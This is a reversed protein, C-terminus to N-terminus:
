SLTGMNTLIQRHVARLKDQDYNVAQPDVQALDMDALLLLAKADLNWEDLLGVATGQAERIRTACQKSKEYEGQKFASLAMWYWAEASLPHTPAVQTMREFLALGDDSRNIRMLRRALPVGVYPLQEAPSAPDDLLERAFEEAEPMKGSRAYAEFVLEMYGWFDSSESWLWDKKDPTLGEWLAIVDQNRGFDRVQRRALKFLRNMALSPVTAERFQNLALSSGQEFLQMGWERLDSPGFQLQRALNMLVDPDQINGLTSEMLSRAELLPGPQGAAILAQCWLLQAQLRFRVPISDEEFFLRYLRASEVQDFLSEMRALAWVSKGWMANTTPVHQINANLLPRALDHRKAMMCSLALSHRTRPVFSQGYKSQAEALLGDLNVSRGEWLSARVLEKAGTLWEKASLDPMELLAQAKQRKVTANGPQAKASSLLMKRIETEVVPFQAGERASWREAVERWQRMDNKRLERVITLITRSRLGAPAADLNEILRDSIRWGGQQRRAAILTKWAPLTKAGYKGRRIADTAIEIARAAEGKALAIQALGQRARNAGGKASQIAKQFFEEAAEPEGEQLFLNGMRTAVVSIRPPVMPVEVQRNLALEWGASRVAANFDTMKAAALEVAHRAMTVAQQVDPVKLLARVVGIHPRLWLTAHDLSRTAAQLQIQAADAFRGRRFESDAVLALVRAQRPRDLGSHTLAQNAKALGAATEGRHIDDGIERLTKSFAARDQPARHPRKRHANKRSNM